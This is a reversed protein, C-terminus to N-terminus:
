RSRDRSVGKLNRIGMQRLDYPRRGKGQREEGGLVTYQLVQKRNQKCVSVLKNHSFRNAKMEVYNMLRQIRGQGGHSEKGEVPLM